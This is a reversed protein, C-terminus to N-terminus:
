EADVLTPALFEAILKRTESSDSVGQMHNAGRVIEFQIGLREQLLRVYDASIGNYDGQLNFWEIPAFNPDPALRIIPHQALWAQEAGTLDISPTHDEVALSTGVFFNSTALCLLIAILAQKM